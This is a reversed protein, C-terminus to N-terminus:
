QDHRRKVCTNDHLSRSADKMFSEDCVIKLRATEPANADM